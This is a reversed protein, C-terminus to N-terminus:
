ISRMAFVLMLDPGADDPANPPNTLANLRIPVVIAM